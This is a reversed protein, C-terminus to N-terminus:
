RGCWDKVSKKGKPSDFDINLKITNGPYRLFVQVSKVKRDLVALRYDKDLSEELDVRQAENLWDTRSDRPVITGSFYQSSISRRYVDSLWVRYEGSIARAVECHYDGWMVIQGGHYVSHAHEQPPPAPSVAELLSQRTIWTAMAVLVGLSIATWAAVESRKKSDTQDFVPRLALRGLGAALLLTVMALAWQGFLEVPPLSSPDNGHALVLAPINFAFVVPFRRSVM